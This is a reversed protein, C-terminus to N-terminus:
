LVMTHPFSPSLTEYLEAMEVRLVKMLWQAMSPSLLVALPLMGNDCSLVPIKPGYKTSGTVSAPTVSDVPSQCNCSAENHMLAPELLTEPIVMGAKSRLLISRM